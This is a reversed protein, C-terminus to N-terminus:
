PVFPQNFAQIFLLMDQRRMCIKSAELILGKNLTHDASDEELRMQDYNKGKNSSYIPMEM